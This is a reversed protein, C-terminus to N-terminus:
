QGTIGMSIAVAPEVPLGALQMKAREIAQSVQGRTSGVAQSVWARQVSDHLDYGL